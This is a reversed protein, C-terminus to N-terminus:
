CRQCLRFGRITLCQGNMNIPHNRLEIPINWDEVMNNSNADNNQNTIKARNRNSEINERFGRPNLPQGEDYKLGGPILTSKADPESYKM